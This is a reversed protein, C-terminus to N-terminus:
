HSGAGGAVRKAQTALYVAGGYNEAEFEVSASRLLRDAEPLDTRGTRQKVQQLTVEAEAMASAAEARTALSRLRAMARVAESIAETLRRQLDANQGQLDVIQANHERLQSRLRAITERDADPNPAPAPAAARRQAATSDARVPTPASEQAHPKCATLGTVALALAFAIRM